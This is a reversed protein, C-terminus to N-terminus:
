SENRIDPGCDVASAANSMAIASVPARHHTSNAPLRHYISFM